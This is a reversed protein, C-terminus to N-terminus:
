AVSSSSIIFDPVVVYLTIADDDDAWREKEDAVESDDVLVVAVVDEFRLGTRENLM